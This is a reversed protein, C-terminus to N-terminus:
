DASPITLVNPGISERISKGCQDYSDEETWGLGLARLVGEDHAADGVNAGQAAALGAPLGVTVALLAGHLYCPVSGTSNAHPGDVNASM